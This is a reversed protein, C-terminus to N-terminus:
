QHLGCEKKDTGEWWWRGSRIDGGEKVARTCPQCGITPFGKDHLPNYPINNKRIYNWVDALEWSFLPNVKFLSKEEDWEVAETKLRNESQSRRLGTIWASMGDLIRKSPLTKRIHCCLKRNEVSEYFLNVGKENVMGEVQHYDPFIIDIVNGYKERTREMLSYTEPFMRGTDLTFIRIKYGSAVIMDTLVQDELGLSSAFCVKDKFESLAFNLIEQPSSENLKKSYAKAQAIM